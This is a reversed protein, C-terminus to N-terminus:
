NNPKRSEYILVNSPVKFDNRALEILAGTLPEGESCSCDCQFFGESVGDGIILPRSVLFVDKKM